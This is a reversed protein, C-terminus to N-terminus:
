LEQERAGDADRGRAPRRASEPSSCVSSWPPSGNSRVTTSTACSGGASPRRRRVIRARSTRLGRRVGRARRRRSRHLAGHAGRRRHVAPRSCAPTISTFVFPGSGGPTGSAFGVAILVAATAGVRGFRLAAWILPPFVLYTLPHRSTRFAVHSLAAVALLMVVLEAWRRRWWERPPPQAWALALPLTLLVGCTLRGVVVHALGAGAGGASIVGGALNALPGVTASIVTGVGIALIMRWSGGCARCSAAPAPALRRLLWTAVVVELVNGATQGIATGLPLVGYDNALLDGIVVGALLAHGGPVPFAMGVGAPLWVIAAVPGSFQLAYGVEAAGYYAAALALVALPYVMPERAIRRHARARGAVADSASM